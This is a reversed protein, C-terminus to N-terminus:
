FSAALCFTISSRFIACSTPCSSHGQLELRRCFQELLSEVTAGRAALKFVLGTHIIQKRKERLTESATFCWAFVRGLRVRVSRDFGIQAGRQLSSSLTFVRTWPVQTSYIGLQASCLCSFNGGIIHDRQCYFPTDSEKLVGM